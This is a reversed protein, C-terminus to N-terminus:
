LYNEVLQDEMTSTKNKSRRDLDKLEKILAECKDSLVKKDDILQDIFCQHRQITIEYEEKQLNLRKQAEKEMETTHYVTLERQQTLAKQLMDVTKNKNDIELRQTVITTTVDNAVASAAELQENLVHQTSVPPFPVQLQEDQVHPEDREVEDLYTLISKLKSDTTRNAATDNYHKNLNQTSLYGVPQPIPKVGPLPPPREELERLTAFINDM